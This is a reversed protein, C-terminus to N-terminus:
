LCVRGTAKKAGVSASMSDGRGLVNDGTKTGEHQQLLVDCVPYNKFLFKNNM